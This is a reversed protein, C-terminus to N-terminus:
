PYSLVVGKNGTEKQIRAQVRSAEEKSRYPGVRVRTARKGDVNVSDLKPAYGHERLEAALRQANDADSFAGLQVVYGATVVPAPKPKAPEPKATTVPPPPPAAAPAPADPESEPVTQPQVPMMPPITKVPESEPDPEPPVVPTVVVRTEPSPVVAPRADPDQPVRESLIMPVFIVALAVLIIAGVIRHKPNFDRSPDDKDAM